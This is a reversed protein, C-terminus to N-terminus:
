KRGRGSFRKRLRANTEALDFKPLEFEDGLRRLLDLTMADPEQDPDQIADILKQWAAVGGLDEIPSEGRGAVCHPPPNDDSASLRNEIQITHRWDDGFDYTYRFTKVKVAELQGLTISNEDIESRDEPTPVAIRRVEFGHLHCDDWGMVIQVVRHLEGLSMEPVVVRRWVTPRVSDLSIKVAYMVSPDHAVVPLDGLFGLSNRSIKTPKLAEYAM